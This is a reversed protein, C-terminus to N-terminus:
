KFVSGAGENRTQYSAPAGGLLERLSATLFSKQVFSLDFPPFLHRRVPLSWRAGAAARVLRHGNHVTMRGRLGKFRGLPTLNDQAAADYGGVQRNPEAPSTAVAPPAQAIPPLFLAGLAVALVLVVGAARELLPMVAASVPARESM